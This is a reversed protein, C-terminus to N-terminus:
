AGLGNSDVGYILVPASNDTPALVQLEFDYKITDQRGATIKPLSNLTVRPLVIRQNVSGDSLDLVCAYESNIYTSPISISYAGGTGKTITAGGWAMSVTQKNHEVAEFSVMRSINTPFQRVIELSQWVEVDKTKYEQTVEFGDTLFGANVFAANVSSTSDTPLTTGVPAIWVTGTGAIRINKSDVPM